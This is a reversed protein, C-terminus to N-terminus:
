WFPWFKRRTRITVRFPRRNILVELDALQLARLGLLPLRPARVMASPCVGIDSDLELCFPPADSFKDREGPLNPHLWVNAARLPVAEDYPKIQGQEALHESRLGAWQLLQDERILFNHTFGPDFVAPFRPTNPDLTEVAAHTVSVWLVIQYSHVRIERGRVTIPTHKEFYPLDRIITPV